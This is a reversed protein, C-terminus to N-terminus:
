VHRKRDLARAARDRTNDTCGEARPGYERLAPSASGSDIAARMEEAMNRVGRQLGYDRGAWGPVFGADRIALDPAAAPELAHVVEGIAQEAEGPEDLRALARGAYQAAVEADRMSSYLLGQKAPTDDASFLVRPLEGEYTPMPDLGWYISHAALPDDVPRTCAGLLGLGIIIAIIRAERSM